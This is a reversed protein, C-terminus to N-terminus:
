KKKRINTPRFDDDSSPDLDKDYMYRDWHGQYEKSIVNMVKALKLEAESIQIQSESMQNQILKLEQLLEPLKQCEMLKGTVPCVIENEKTELKKQGNLYKQYLQPMMIGLGFLLSM